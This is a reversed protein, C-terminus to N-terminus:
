TFPFYLIVQSIGHMTESNRTIYIPDASKPIKSAYFLLKKGVKRSLSDTGNKLIFGQGKLLSGNPEGSVDTLFQWEVSRLIRFSYLDRALYYNILDYQSITDNCNKM